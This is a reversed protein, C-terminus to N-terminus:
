QEHTMFYDGKSKKEGGLEKFICFDNEAQQSCLSLYHAPCPGQASAQQDGTKHKTYTLRKLGRLRFYDSQCILAWLSFTIALSQEKPNFRTEVEGLNM